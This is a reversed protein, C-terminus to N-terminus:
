GVREELSLAKGNGADKSFDLATNALCDNSNGFVHSTFDEGRPLPCLHPRANLM